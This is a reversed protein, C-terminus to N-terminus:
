LEVQFGMYSDYIYSHWTKISWGQVHWEPCGRSASLGSTERRGFLFHDASSVASPKESFKSSLIGNIKKGDNQFILKLQNTLFFVASPKEDHKGKSGKFFINFQCAESESVWSNKLCLFRIGPAPSGGFRNKRPAPPWKPYQRDLSSWPHDM